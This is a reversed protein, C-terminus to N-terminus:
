TTRELFDSPTEQAGDVPLFRIFVRSESPTTLLQSIGTTEVLIVVLAPCAEVKGHM